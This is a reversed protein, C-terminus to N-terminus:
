LLEPGSSNGELAIVSNGRAEVVIHPVLVDFVWGSANM